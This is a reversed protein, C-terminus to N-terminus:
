RRAVTLIAKIAVIATAPAIFVNLLSFFTPIATWGFALNNLISSLAQFSLLFAIAGILFTKVESTAINILGVLIGLIAITYISWVPVVTASFLAIVIALVLGVIFSIRGIMSIKKKNYISM